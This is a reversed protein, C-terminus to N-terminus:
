HIERLVGKKITFKTIGSLPSDYMKHEDFKLILGASEGHTNYEIEVYDNLKLPFDSIFEGSLNMDKTIKSILVGNKYITQGYGSTKIEIFLVFDAIPVYSKDELKNSCSFFIIFLLVTKM